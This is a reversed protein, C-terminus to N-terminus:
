LGVDNSFPQNVSSWCWSAQLMVYIYFTIQMFSAGGRNCINGNLAETQQQEAM